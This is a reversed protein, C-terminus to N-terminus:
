QPTKQCLPYNGNNDALCEFIVLESHTSSLCKEISFRNAISAAQDIETQYQGRSIERTNYRSEAIKELSEVYKQTANVASLCKSPTPGAYLSHSFLIACWVLIITVGRRINKESGISM